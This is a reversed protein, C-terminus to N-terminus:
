SAPHYRGSSDFTCWEGDIKVTGTVMKGSVPDCYYIGDYLQIWGTKMDCYHHIIEDEDVDGPDHGTAFYYWASGIKHWGRYLAGDAGAYYWSTDGTKEDRHSYWSNALMAGNKQFIYPDGSELPVELSYGKKGVSTFRDALMYGLGFEPVFLYWTGKIQKWGTVAAGDDGLYYWNYTGNTSLYDFMENLMEFPYGGDEVGKYWQNALMKGNKDFAYLKGVNAYGFLASEFTMNEDAGIRYIGDKFMYASEPDFYYWVNSIKKWGTVCTGDKNTYVWEVEEGIKDGAENYIGWAFKLWGAKEHLAGNNDFAYINSFFM